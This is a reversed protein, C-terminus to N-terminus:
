VRDPMLETEISTILKFLLSFNPSLICVTFFLCFIDCLCANVPSYGINWYTGILYSYGFSLHNLLCVFFFPHFFLLWFHFFKSERRGCESLVSAAECIWNLRFSRKKDRDLKKNLKKKRKRRREERKNRDVDVCLLMERWVNGLFFFFFFLVFFRFRNFWISQITLVFRKKKYPWQAHAQVSFM